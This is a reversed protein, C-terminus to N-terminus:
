IKLLLSIENLESLTFAMNFLHSAPSFKYARKYRLALMEFVKCKM